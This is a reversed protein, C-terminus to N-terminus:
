SGSVWGSPAPVGEYHVGGEAWTAGCGRRQPAVAGVAGLARMARKVVLPFRLM